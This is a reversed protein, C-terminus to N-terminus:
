NNLYADFEQILYGPQEQNQLLELESQNIQYPTPDFSVDYIQIDEMDSPVQEQVNQDPLDENTKMEENAERVKSTSPM